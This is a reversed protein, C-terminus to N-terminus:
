RFIQDRPTLGQRFPKAGFARRDHQHVSHRLEVPRLTLHVLRRRQGLDQRGTKDVESGAEGPRAVNQDGLRGPARKEAGVEIGLELAAAYACDDEPADGRMDPDFRGRPLCPLKAVLENDRSTVVLM